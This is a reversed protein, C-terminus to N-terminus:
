PNMTNGLYPLTNVVGLETNAVHYINLVYYSGNETCIKLKEASEDQVPPTDCLM